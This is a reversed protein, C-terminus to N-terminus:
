GAVRDFVYLFWKKNGDNGRQYKCNYDKWWHKSTGAKGESLCSSKAWYARYFSWGAAQLADASAPTSESALVQAQPPSQPTAQASSVPLAFAMVAGGALALAVIKKHM